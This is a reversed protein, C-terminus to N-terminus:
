LLQSEEAIIIHQLSLFTCIQKMNYTTNLKNM